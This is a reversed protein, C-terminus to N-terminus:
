VLISLTLPVWISNAELASMLSIPYIVVFAIPMTWAIPIGQLAGLFALGYSVCLPIAGIWGVYMLQAMWDKWNPDPWGEIRDLGGATSELVCLCCAAAYSFTMLSIWIIPLLFFAAAIGTSM